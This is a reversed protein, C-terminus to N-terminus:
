PSWSPWKDDASISTLRRLNTGDPNMLYIEFHGDRNTAFAITSGDHSWTAEGDTAGAVNTLNTRNSGDADVVWVDASVGPDSFTFAIKTGDPSWTPNAGGQTTVRTVGSGDPNMVYIDRSGARDSDFVLKTGDRSWEARRDQAPHNTLNLLGTGDPNIVWTDWQSSELGSFAIKTGDPSWYPATARTAATLQVVNSGDANMLHIQDSGSRDSVFAIQSRDPSVVPQRDNTSPSNTLNTQGAGDHRMIFVDRNGGNGDRESDFVLWAWCKVVFTTSGLGGTVTVTRPNAGEVVECHSPVDTLEITHEGAPLDEFVVTENPGVPHDLSGNVVATFASPLNMGTTQTSVEVDGNPDCEVEFTTSVTDGFAVTVTRPNEGMVVCNGSVDTLEVTRTGVSVLEFTVVDNVGVSGTITDDVVATYGDPDADGGSTSTVVRLAGQNPSCSVEFTTSGRGDLPVTVTRPNQGSVVCNAALDVLEVKHEGSALDSFTVVDNSGIPRFITDNVVVTFGDPDIDQGSTSTVVELADEVAGCEVEFTTAVVDDFPVTVMRPNGGELFCNAPVTLVAAVERAPVSDLVTVGNSDVARSVAGDLTLTYTDPVATGSSSVTVTIAGVNGVCTVEFRGDLAQPSGATVTRPNQGAVTCNAAVGTLEVTYPGHPVDEFAIAGSPAIPRTGLGEVVVLYGNPDIDLGTTATTVVLDDLVIGTGDDGCGWTTLLLAAVWTRVACRTRSRSRKVNV